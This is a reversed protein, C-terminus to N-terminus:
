GGSVPPLFAVEDGDRVKSELHAFESNLAFLLSPRRDELRPYDAVFKSFISRIDSFLAADVTMERIGTIDALSAFFLVRISM